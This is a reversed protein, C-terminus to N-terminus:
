HPSVLEGALFFLLLAGVATAVFVMASREKQRLIAVLGTVFAAVGCLLGLLMTLALAPRAAIDGLITGGAPVTRYLSDALSGGLIFLLPMVVVLGVSWRGLLTAPFVQLRQRQM